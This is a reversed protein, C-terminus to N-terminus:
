APGRCEKKHAPWAKRQCDLDCYYARKCQGCRQPSGVALQRGCSGCVRALAREVNVPGPAGTGVYVVPGGAAIVHPAHLSALWTMREMDRKRAIKACDKGHFFALTGVMERVPLNVNFPIPQGQPPSARTAVVAGRIERPPEGHQVCGCGVHVCHLNALGCVQVSCVCVCVSIRKVHM